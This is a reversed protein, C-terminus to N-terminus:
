YDLTGTSDQHRNVIISNHQVEYALEACGHHNRGPRSKTRDIVGQESKGCDAVRVNLCGAYHHDALFVQLIAPRNFTVAAHRHDTYNRPHLGDIALRETRYELLMKVRACEYSSRADM